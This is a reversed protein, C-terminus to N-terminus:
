CDAAECGIYLGQAAERVRQEAVAYFEAMLEVGVFRRGLRVAAVGTTGVGMFPDLVTDGEATLLKVLREMLALPKEHPHTRQVRRKNTYPFFSWLNGLRMEPHKLQRIQYERTRIKPARMHRWQGTRLYRHLDGITREVTEWDIGGFPLIPLQTDWWPAYLDHYHPKGKSYIFISEHVRRMGTLTPNGARKCWVVHERWRWGADLVQQHMTALTPMQGFAALWANPKAVRYCERWVEAAPLQDFKLERGFLGYPPDTIIADVAGADLTKLVDLCDGHHLEM